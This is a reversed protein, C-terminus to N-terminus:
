NSEYYRIRSNNKKSNSGKDDAVPGTMKSGTENVMGLNGATSKGMKGVKPNKLSYDGNKPM